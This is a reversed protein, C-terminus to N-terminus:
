TRIRDLCGRVLFASVLPILGPVIGVEVIVKGTRLGCLLTRRLFRGGLTFRGAETARLLGDYDFTDSPTPQEDATQNTESQPPDRVRSSPREAPVFINTSIAGRLKGSPLSAHL